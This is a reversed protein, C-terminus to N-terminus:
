SGKQRRKKQERVYYQAQANWLEKYKGEGEALLREHSGRQVISGEHFVIIEDCFRCSSLRHSIYIATKDGVIENFRTYIEYEAVPDLAATPEDLIMVPSDKYLLRAMMLRQMEGGSLEAADEFVEKGLHTHLGKPLGEFKEKLGVKELCDKVRDMDTKKDFSAVNEAVEGALLSFDQFVAAFLRYYERRNFERINVGNLLVQGQDPDYFGCLLKILTTKGAGNVGVVALKEGPHLTLNLHSFIDQESGPYRFTVDKLTITYSGKKDASLGRGGEFLFPEEYDVLERICSIELSQKYLLSFSQMIGNVWGTFGSVATFYLLFEAASLDGQVTLRLLWSYAIGNRLFSLVIDAVDALLYVRERRLYFDQLLGLSKDMLEGLWEGMGFIRVDKALLRDRTKNRLYFFRNKIEAEEQRHRYGWGNLKKSVLYGTVAAAMTVFVIVLDVRALLYLYIGFGMFNRIIQAFTNWIEAAPSHDGKSADTAKTFLRIFDQSERVPYSCTGAKKWMKRIMSFRLPMRVFMKNKDVYDSFAYVAMGALTFLSVAGLLEGAPMGGKASHRELIGLITPTVYLELVSCAVALLAQLMTIVLVVPSERFAEGVMFLCNSLMGYKASARTRSLHAGGSADGVRKGTRMKKETRRKTILNERRGGSYCLFDGAMCKPSSICSRPSSFVGSCFVGIVMSEPESHCFCRRLSRAM